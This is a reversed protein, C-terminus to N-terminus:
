ALKYRYIIRLVDNAGKTIPTELNTGSVVQTANIYYNNSNNVQMQRIDECIVPANFTNSALRYSIINHVTSLDNSFVAGEQYSTNTVNTLEGTENVIHYYPLYYKGEHFLGTVYQGVTTGFNSITYPSIGMDVIDYKIEDLNSVDIVAKQINAGIEGNHNGTSLTVFVELKNQEPKAVLVPLVTSDITMGERTEFPISLTKASTSNKWNPVYTLTVNYTNGSASTKTAKFISNNLILGGYYSNINSYILSSSSSKFEKTKLNAWWYSYQSLSKYLITGNTTHELLYQQNSSYFEAPMDVDKMLLQYNSNQTNHGRGIVVSRVVGTFSNKLYELAFKIEGGKDFYCKGDVPIMQQSNESSSGALNYFTVDPHLDTGLNGVYPPKFTDKKIDVPTKMTYIGFSTPATVSPMTGGSTARTVNNLYNQSMMQYLSHKLFPDTITNDKVERHKVKGHQDELIVEIQGKLKLNNM